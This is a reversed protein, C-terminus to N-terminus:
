HQLVAQEHHMTCPTHHTTPLLYRNNDHVVPLSSAESPPSASPARLHRREEEPATYTPVPAPTPAARPATPPNQNESISVKRKREKPEKRERQSETLAEPPAVAFSSQSGPVVHSFKCADGSKCNGQAFFACPKPGGSGDDKFLIYKTKKDKTGM